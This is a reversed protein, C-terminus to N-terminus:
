EKKTFRSFTEVSITREWDIGGHKAFVEELVSVPIRGVTETMENPYDAYKRMLKEDESPFGFEVEEWTHGFTRYGNESSCESKNHIQLSVHFGDVAWVEPCYFLQNDYQVPEDFVKNRKDYIVQGQFISMVILRFFLTLNM